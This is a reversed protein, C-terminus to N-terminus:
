RHRLVTARARCNVRLPMFIQRSGRSNSRRYDGLALARRKTIWPGRPRSLILRDRTWSSALQLGDTDQPTPSRRGLHRRVLHARTRKPHLLGPCRRHPLPGAEPTRREDVARGPVHRTWDAESTRTSRCWRYPRRRPRLYRRMPARLPAGLPRGSLFSRPRDTGRLGRQRHCCERPHAALRNSSDPRLACQGFAFM